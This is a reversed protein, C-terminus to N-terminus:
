LASLVSTYICVYMTLFDSQKGSLPDVVDVVAAVELVM